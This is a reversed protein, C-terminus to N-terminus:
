GSAPASATWSTAAASPPILTPLVPHTATHGGIEFLRDAALEAVEAATMPLITRSRRRRSRLAERLRKMADSANRPECRGAPAEVDLLVARGAGDEAPRGCAVCAGDRAADTVAALSLRIPADGIQM